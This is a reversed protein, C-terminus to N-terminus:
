RNSLDGNPLSAKEVVKGYGTIGIVDPMVIGEKTIEGLYDIKYNYYKGFIELMRALMYRHCFDGYKEYCAIAISENTEIFNIWYNRNIVCSQAMEARYRNVYQEQTAEGAKFAKLLAVSPAFIPDTTKGWRTISHLPINLKECERYQSLSVTYLKM